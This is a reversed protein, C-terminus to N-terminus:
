DAALTSTFLRSPPAVDVAHALESCDDSKFTGAVVGTLKQRLM